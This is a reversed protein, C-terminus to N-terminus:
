KCVNDFNISAKNLLDILKENEKKSGNMKWNGGVFLKRSMKKKAKYTKYRFFFALNIKVKIANVVVLSPM